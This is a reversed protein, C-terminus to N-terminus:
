IFAKAINPIIVQQIFMCILLLVFPSIDIPGLNPLMRRIPGLLPETVAHLADYIARVIPNYLNIIGFGILWSMIVMAIIIVVYLHILYSIFSLLEIM